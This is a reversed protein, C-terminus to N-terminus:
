GKKEVLTLKRERTQWVGDVIGGRCRVHLIVKTGASLADLEKPWKVTTWHDDTSVVELAASKEVGGEMWKVCIEDGEILKVNDGSYALKEGKTWEGAGYTGVEPSMRVRKGIKENGIDVERSDIKREWGKMLSPAVVAECIEPDFESYPSEVVGKITPAFKLNGIRRPCGDKEVLRATAEVISNFISELSSAPLNMGTEKVLEEFVAASPKTARLKPVLQYGIKKGYVNIPKATYDLYLM